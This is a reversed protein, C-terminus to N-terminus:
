KKTRPRAKVLQYREDKFALKYGKPVASKLVKALEESVKPAPTKAKSVKGPKRVARLASVASGVESKDVAEFTGDSKLGVVANIPQVSVFSYRRDGTTLLVADVSLSVKQGGIKLQVKDSRAAKKKLTNVQVPTLDANNFSRKDGAAM